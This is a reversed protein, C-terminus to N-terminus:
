RCSAVHNHYITIPYTSTHQLNQISFTNYQKWTMCIDDGLSHVLLISFRGPAPDSPVYGFVMTTKASVQHHQFFTTPAMRLCRSIKSILWIHPESIGNLDMLICWSVDLYLETTQQDGQNEWIKRGACHQETCCLHASDASPGTGAPHSFGGPRCWHKPPLPPHRPAEVWRFVWPIPFHALFWPPNTPTVWKQCGFLSLFFPCTIQFSQSFRPFSM